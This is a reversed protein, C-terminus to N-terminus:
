SSSESGECSCWVKMDDGSAIIVTYLVMITSFFATSYLSMAAFLILLVRAPGRSEWWSKIFFLSILVVGTFGCYFFVISFSNMYGMEANSMYRYYTEENGIGVGIWKQLSPFLESQRWIFSTRSTNGISSVKKILYSGLTSERFIILLVLGLLLLIVAGIASRRSIGHYKLFLVIFAFILVSALLIAYTSTCCILALLMTAIGAYAWFGIDLTESYLLILSIALIVYYSFHAPESFFSAFRFVRATLRGNTYINETTGGLTQKGIHLTLARGTVSYVAVQFILFLSAIIAVTFIVKRLYKQDLRRGLVTACGIYFFWRVVRIIFYEVSFAPQFPAFILTLILCILALFLMNKHISHIKLSSGTGYFFSLVTAAALILEGCSVGPIPSDIANLPFFVAFLIVALKEATRSSGQETVFGPM